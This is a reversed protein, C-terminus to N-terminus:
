FKARFNRVTLGYPNKSPQTDFDLMMHEEPVSFDMDSSEESSQDFGAQFINRLQQNIDIGSNFESAFSNHETSLTNQNNKPSSSTKLYQIPKSYVLERNVEKLVGGDQQTHVTHNVAKVNLLSKFSKMSKSFDNEKTKLSSTPKALKLSQKSSTASLVPKHSRASHCESTLTSLSPKKNLIQKPFGKPSVLSSRLSSKFNNDTFKGSGQLGNSFDYPNTYFNTSSNNPKSSSNPTLKLFLRPKPDKFSKFDM